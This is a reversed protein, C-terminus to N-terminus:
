WGALAVVMRRCIDTVVIVMSITVVVNPNAFTGSLRTSSLSAAM